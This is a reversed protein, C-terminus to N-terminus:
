IKIKLEKQIVEQQIIALYEINIVLFIIKSKSKINDIERKVMDEVLNDFNFKPKWKLRNKIKQPNGKM